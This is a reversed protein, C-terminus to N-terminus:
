RLRAAFDAAGALQAPTGARAGVFVEGGRRHLEIRAPLVVPKLFRCHWRRVAAGEDQELGTWARAMTAFGQAIVSPFGLARAYRKSWHLPNFDGTLKAFDTGTGANLTWARVREGDEPVLLPERAMRPGPKPVLLRLDARHASPVSRTSTVFHFTVLDKCSGSEFSLVRGRVELDEGAPLGKRVEVSCGANVARGFFVPVNRALEGVLPFCWQPFLHPPLEGPVLMGPGVHETYADVLTRPPAPM